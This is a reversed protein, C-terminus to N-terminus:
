SKARGNFDGGIRKKLENYHEEFQDMKKHLHKSVFYQSVNSGVGMFFGLLMMEVYDPM